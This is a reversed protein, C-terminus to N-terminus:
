RRCERAPFSENSSRRRFIVVQVGEGFFGRPFVRDGSVWWRFERAPFGEGSSRRRFGEGSSMGGGGNTM